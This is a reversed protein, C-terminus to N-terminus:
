ELNNFCLSTHKFDESHHPDYSGGNRIPKIYIMIHTRFIHTLFNAILM